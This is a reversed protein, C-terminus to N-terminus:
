PLLRADGTYPWDQLLQFGEAFKYGAQAGRFQALTMMMDTIETGFVHAIWAVQSHHSRLMKKKTEIVSSIDVYFDPDFGNGIITDMVFVTPIPTEPFNTKVLPVSAPIRCDRAIQGTIRHDPHYDNETMIFMVDPRAERIADIFRTRSEKNNFLWEDDFDMWILTADLHAVSAKAEEHRTRGIQERTISPDGTGVNGNTAIAIFIEDGREKCLALTGSCLTEVDDPHAGIALVRM